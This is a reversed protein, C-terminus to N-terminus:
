FTELSPLSHLYNIHNHEMMYNINHFWSTCCPFMIYFQDYIFQIIGGTRLTNASRKANNRKGTPFRAVEANIRGSDQNTLDGEKSWMKTQM